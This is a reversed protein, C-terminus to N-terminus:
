SPKCIPVWAFPILAPLLYTLPYFDYVDLLPLSIYPFFLVEWLYALGLGFQYSGIGAGVLLDQGALALGFLLLGAASLLVGKRTCTRRLVIGTLAFLLLTLVLPLMNNNRPFQERILTCIVSGILMLVPPLWYRDKM